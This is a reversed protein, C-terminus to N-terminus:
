FSIEVKTDWTSALHHWIFLANWGHSSELANGMLLAATEGVDDQASNGRQVRAVLNSLETGTLFGQRNTCRLDKLRVEEEIDDGDYGEGM